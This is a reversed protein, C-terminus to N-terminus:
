VALQPDPTPAPATLPLYVAHRRLGLANLITRAPAREGTITANVVFESVGLRRALEARSGAEEAMERLKARIDADTM